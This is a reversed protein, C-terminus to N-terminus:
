CTKINEQSNKLNDYWGKLIDIENKVDDPTPLNRNLGVGQSHLWTSVKGYSERMKQCDEMTLATLKSLGSTDVKSSFRKLVVSIVDEVSREWIERIDRQLDKVVNEWKADNGSEYHFKEATLRNYLSNIRKKTSQAKPPTDNHCLGAESNDPRKTLHRYNINANKKFCFEDLLFLFEINHTFLIVQRTLAEKAIREAIAERHKHDLSSIPDDFILTSHSQTTALEAFFAALAVCRFEGESLIQGVKATPKRTLAVKFQPAGYSSKEQKLEIALAAIKMEDIEKSFQARLANTVLKESIETSKQTIKVTNTEQKILKELRKIEKNRDIEALIDNKVIGLWKKDELNKKELILANRKEIITSETLDKIRKELSNIEQNIMSEPWSASDPLCIKRNILARLRWSSKLFFERVKKSLCDNGLDNMCFCAAEKIEKLNIQKSRILNLHSQYKEFSEKEKQKTTDKIFSEFRRMRESTDESLLQQCLVCSANENTNPFAVGYYASIESYKRAAEWLTRWTDSGVDPLLEGRFLNNASIKAAEHCKKYTTELDKLLDFKERTIVSSINDKLSILRKIRELKANLEAVVRNQNGSLDTNLQELRLEDEKSLHSLEEIKPIHHEELDGKVLLGVQTENDCKQNKISEPTKSKLLDITDQLKKKVLSCAEALKRLLEMEFPVYAVDNTADVHINATTSDFVSVSSFISDVQDGKIWEFQDEEGNVIFKIKAKSLGPDDNYINALIEHNKPNRARCIQKLIRIYGSKGSGNDGYVITIGSPYFQLCQNEALANVNSVDSISKINVKKNFENEVKVDNVSIPIASDENGNCISFFGNIDEETIQNANYLIRLAHRQWIPRENSWTVLDEM